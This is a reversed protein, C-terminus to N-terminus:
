WNEEHIKIYLCLRQNLDKMWTMGDGNVIQHCQIVAVHWWSNITETRNSSFRQTKEKPNTLVTQLMQVFGGWFVFMWTHLLKFTSLQRAATGQAQFATRLPFLTTLVTRFIVQMVQYLACYIWLYKLFRNLISFYTEIPFKPKWLSLTLHQNDAKQM